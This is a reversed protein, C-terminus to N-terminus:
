SLFIVSVEVKRDLAKPKSKVIARNKKTVVITFSSPKAGQNVLLKVVNSARASGLEFNSSYKKTKIPTTDTYGKVYIRANYPKVFLALKKFFDRYEKAIAASGSSFLIPLITDMKFRNSVSTKNIEVWDELGAKKIAVLLDAKKLKSKKIYPTEKKEPKNNKLDQSIIPKENIVSIKKKFANSSKTKAKLPPLARTEALLKAKRIERRKKAEIEKKKALQKSYKNVLLELRSKTKILSSIKKERKVIAEKQRLSAKHGLDQIKNIKLVLWVVESNLSQIQENYQKIQENYAIIANELVQIPAHEVHFLKEEQYGFSLGAAFFFFLIILLPFFVKDFKLISLTEGLKDVCSRMKIIIEM